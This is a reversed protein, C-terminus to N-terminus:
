KFNSKHILDIYYIMNEDPDFLALTFNFSSRNFLDRDNHSVIGKSHRDIYLWYGNEIHPIKFKDALNYVYEVDDRVGGYMILNLNESLPLPRWNNKIKLIAKETGKGDLKIKLYTDGDGHFGGHTDVCEIISDDPMKIGLSKSIQRDDPFEIGLSKSIQRDDSQSSYHSVSTIFIVALIIILVAYKLYRM